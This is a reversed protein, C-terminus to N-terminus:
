CSQCPGAFKQFLRNICGIENIASDDQHMRMGAAMIMKRFDVVIAVTDHDRNQLM